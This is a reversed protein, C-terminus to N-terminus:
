HILPRFVDILEDALIAHDEVNPHGTCGRAKMPKFFYTVVQPEAPYQLDIANKVQALCRQLLERNEGSVM